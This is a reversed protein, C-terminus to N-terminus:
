KDYIYKLIYFLDEIPYIANKGPNNPIGNIYKENFKYTYDHEGDDEILSYYNVLLNKFYNSNSTTDKSSFMGYSGNKKSLNYKHKFLYKVKDDKEYIFLGKTTLTKLEKYYSEGIFKDYIHRFTNFMCICKDITQNTGTNIINYLQDKFFQISFNNKNSSINNNINSIIISKHKNFLFELTEHIFDAKEDISLKNLDKYIKFTENKVLMENCDFIFSYYFTNFILDNKINKEFYDIADKFISLFYTKYNFTKKFEKYTNIFKDYEKIIEM